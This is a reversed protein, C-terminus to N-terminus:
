LETGSLMELIKKELLEEQQRRFRIFDIAQDGTFSRSCSKTGLHETWHIVVIEGILSYDLDEAQAMLRGLSASSTVPNYADFIGNEKNTTVTKMRYLCM